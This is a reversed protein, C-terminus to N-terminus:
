SPLSKTQPSALVHRALALLHAPVARTEFSRRPEVNLGDGVDIVKWGQAEDGAPGGAIQFAILALRQGRLLALVHPEITRIFGRDHWHVLHRRQVAEALNM